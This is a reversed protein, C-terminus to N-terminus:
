VVKNNQRAFYLTRHFINRLLKQIGNWTDSILRMSIKHRLTVYAIAGLCTIFITMWGVATQHALTFTMLKDTYGKLVEWLVGFTVNWTGVVMEKALYINDEIFECFLHVYVYRVMAAICVGIDYGYTALKNGVKNLVYGATYTEGFLKYTIYSLLQVLAGISIVKKYNVM